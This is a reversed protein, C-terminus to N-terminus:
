VVIGLTGCGLIEGLDKGAKESEPSTVAAVVELDTQKLLVRALEAGTQGLGIMGVRIM